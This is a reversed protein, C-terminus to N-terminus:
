EKILQSKYIARVRELTDAEDISKDDRIRKIRPFRLAFGSEHRSSKQLGNFTVELVIEPKVIIRWGDDRTTYQRLREDMRT